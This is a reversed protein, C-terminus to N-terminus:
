DSTVRTGAVAARATAILTAIDFPKALVAHVRERPLRELVSPVAATLILIKLHAAATGDIAELVGFGDLRPMMLGLVLLDYAAAHLMALAEVGHQAGSVTFGHRRLATCVM